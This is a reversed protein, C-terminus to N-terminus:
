IHRPVGRIVGVVFRTAELIAGIRLKCVVVTAAPQVSSKLHRGDAVRGVAVGDGLLRDVRDEDRGGVDLGCLDAERARGDRASGGRAIRGVGGGVGVGVLRNARVM